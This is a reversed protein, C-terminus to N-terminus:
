AHEQANPTSPRLAVCVIGIVVAGAITIAHLTVITVVAKAGIVGVINLAMVGFFEYTGIMGPSAPLMSVNALVLLVFLANGLSLDVGCAQAVQHVLFVEVSWIAGTLVSVIGLRARAFLPNLGELGARTMPELRVALAPPLIRGATNTLVVLRDGGALHLAITVVLLGGSITGIVIGAAGLWDPLAPYALLVGSLIVLVSGLDVIKETVLTALVKTRSMQQTRALELTRVLDGARAPLLTNFLYGQMMANFCGRFGIAPTHEILAQWRLARLAFGLLLIFPVPWLTVLEVDVLARVVEAWTVTRGLLVLAAASVMLGILTVLHRQLWGFKTGTTM